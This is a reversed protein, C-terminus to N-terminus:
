RAPRSHRAEAAQPRPVIAAGNAPGGPAPGPPDAPRAPPRTALARDLWPLLQAYIERVNAPSAPLHGEGILTLLVADKGQRYLAAFLAEAQALSVFDLDGHILFVPTHIRDAAFLPSNRQYRDPDAWPPAGLGGQGAESWGASLNVAPGDEPVARFHLPLEGWGSPLDAKAAQAVIARFRDTQTAAVLAGYGGFSHGWLALRDPDALGQRTVAEVASLIQEALGAAPEGPAQGRPLSPALVAFGHATLLRANPTFVLADPAYRGPPNAYVSGPYPLVILPPAEGTASAAPLYLWSTLVEGGPGAHQIPRVRLADVEALRANVTLVLHRGGSADLLRVVQVGRDDRARVALGTASTAMPLEGAALGFRRKAGEADLRLVHDDYAAWAVEQRPAANVAFRAGEGLGPLSVARAGAESTLPRVQGAADVWDARGGGVFALGARGIAAPRTPAAPLAHTLNVAGAEALRFWDARDSSRGTARGFVIPRGALWDAHVVALGSDDYTLDPTVAGAAPRRLADTAAEIQLVEGKAWSRGSLRGFVLLQDGAESWALLQPLVDWSQLPRSAQGSALDVLHLVNRRASTGVRLPETPPPPLPEAEAIAALYRGDPSLELDHFDGAALARVRQTRLDIEVLRRPPRAPWSSLDRGSGVRTATPTKGEAAARWQAALRETTQRLTRLYLPLDGQALAIAVLQTDSRWQLSRGYVAADTPLGLWRTRGSSLAVVGTDWVGGRFRQVVMARGSPSIPGAVYGAGPEPAMLDRALGPRAIDAIKIRGVLPPGYGDSDFRPATDYAAETQLILHRGDPTIEAQDLRELGLLDDLTFPRALAPTSGLFLALALAWAGGLAHRALGRV